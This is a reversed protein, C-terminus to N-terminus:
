QIPPDNLNSAAYRLAEFIRTAQYENLITGAHDKVIYERNQNVVTLQFHWFEKSEDPLFQRYLVADPFKQVLEHKLLLDNDLKSFLQEWDPTDEIITVHFVEKAKLELHGFATNMEISVPISGLYDEPVALVLDFGEQNVRVEGYPSAKPQPEDNSSQPETSSSTGCGSFMLLPLFLTVSLKKM